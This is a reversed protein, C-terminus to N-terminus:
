VLCPQGKKKAVDAWNEKGVKGHNDAEQQWVTAPWWSVEGFASVICHPMPPPQQVLTGAVSICYCSRLTCWPRCWFAAAGARAGGIYQLMVEVQHVEVQHVQVQNVQVQHVEVQHVQVQHVQM